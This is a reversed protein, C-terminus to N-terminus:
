RESVGDHTRSSKVVCLVIGEADCATRVITEVAGLTRDVTPVSELKVRLAESNYVQYRTCCLGCHWPDLLSMNHPLTGRHCLMVM